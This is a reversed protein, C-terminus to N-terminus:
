QFKESCGVEYMEAYELIRMAKGANESRVGQSYGRMRAHTHKHKYGLWESYIAVVLFKFSLRLTIERYIYVQM